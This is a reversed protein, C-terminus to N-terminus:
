RFWCRLFFSDSTMQKREKKKKKKSFDLFFSINSAKRQGSGRVWGSQKNEKIRADISSIWIV